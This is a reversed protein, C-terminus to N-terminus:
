NIDVKQNVQQGYLTESSTNASANMSSCGAKGDWHRMLLLVTQWSLLAGMQGLAKGGNM